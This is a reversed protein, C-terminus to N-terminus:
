VDHDVLELYEAWADLGTNRGDMDDTMVIGDKIALISGKTINAHLTQGAIHIAAVGTEISPGFIEFQHIMVNSAHYLQIGYDWGDWETSTQHHGIAVDNINVVSTYPRGNWYGYIGVGNVGNNKLLSLSKVTLSHIPDGSFVIGHSASDWRLISLKQGEGRFAISKGSTVWLPHTMCYTGAPIYIEGGSPPVAALAANFGAQDVSVGTSVPTCNAAGSAGYTRVNFPGTAPQAFATQTTLLVLGIAKLSFALSCVFEKRV